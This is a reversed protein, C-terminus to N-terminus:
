QILRLGRFVIYHFRAHVLVHVLIPSGAQFPDFCQPSKAPSARLLCEKDANGILSVLRNEKSM